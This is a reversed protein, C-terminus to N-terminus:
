HKAELDNVAQEVAHVIMKRVELNDEKASHNRPLSRLEETLRICEHVNEPSVFDLAVKICSKLNRVQHPCGAPIFVAEGLKQVFTRPEIGFEEKLKLKHEETLYFTQDHIPHIVKNLPSCHIHRFERYHGKLYDHLKLVDERRFIDWLAGGNDHGSGELNETPRVSRDLHLPVETTHVLINVVDSLHCHLKTVSDGFGLEQSSGYAIYTKPGLDPKLTPCKAALNLVGNRPHTYEKFPLVRIFEASHRPLRQEFNGDTPWDKLKLIAPWKTGGLQGKSYGKFFQHASLDVESWDVCNIAKVNSLKHGVERFARWMVMPEWSLGTNSNLVSRVIIPEGLGWHWQFHKLDRHQIERADPSYLLNDNSGERSACKRLMSECGVDSESSLCEESALPSIEHEWKTVTQEAKKLLESVWGDSLISRLELLAGGCGGFNPPPCPIAGKNDAKWDIEAMKKDNLHSDSSYVAVIKKSRAPADKGGTNRQSQAHARKSRAKEVSKAPANYVNTPKKPRALAKIGHLYQIDRDGNEMMVEECGQMQGARVERCCTLCLDYREEARYIADHLVVESVLVGQAKAEIEKETTQEQNFQKLFPLITRLLFKSGDIKVEQRFEFGDKLQNKMPRDMRLCTKCNCNGRCIPCALAIQEETMQPYRKTQCKSCRVVRGKDSRHCQHCMTSDINSRRLYSRRRGVLPLDVKKGLDKIKRRKGGGGGEEEEGDEVLLADNGDDCKRRKKEVGSGFGEVSHAFKGGKEAIKRGRKRSIGSERRGKKGKIPIKGANQQEKKKKIKKLIDKLKVSLAKQAAREKREPGNECVGPTCKNLDVEKGIEEEANEAVFRKTEEDDEENKKSGIQDEKSHVTIPKQGNNEQIIGSEASVNHKIVPFLYSISHQYCMKDGKLKCRDCDWVRGCRAENRPVEM